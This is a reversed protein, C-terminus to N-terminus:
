YTFVVRHGTSVWFSERFHSYITRPIAIKNEPGGKTDARKKKIHIM